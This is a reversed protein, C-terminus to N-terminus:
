AALRCAIRRYLATTEASPGIGFQERLSQVCQRYQREALQMQGLQAYCRMMRRHVPESCADIELQRHAHQLCAHWEARQERLAALHELVQNLRDRLAQADAVLSSEREGEELLDRQYLALAADYQAVAEAAHGLREERLGADAHRVFQETDLWAEGPALLQYGEDGLHLRAAKGLARRLRHLAVHLNNRAADADAEPWFLAALRARSIPRRRQLLLLKLLARVRGRPLAAIQETGQWVRFGDLMRVTLEPALPAAHRLAPAAAPLETGARGVLPQPQRWVSVQIPAADAAAHTAMTFM